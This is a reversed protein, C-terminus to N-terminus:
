HNEACRADALTSLAPEGAGIVQDVFCELEAAFSDVYAPIGWAPGGDDRFRAENWSYSIGGRAGLLKYMVTWPDNTMDDAAFSAWLTAIAGTEMVCIVMVQDEDGLDPRTRSAVATVHRPRGLLYLLSYAHHISVARLVGGYRAALADDHFINYMGWFSTVPAFANEEVLHRARRMSPTYIYNHAPMCARGAARAAADLLDIDAVTAAVPKEVLVHKGAELCRRALEVHSPTPTLILAASAAEDGLLADFSDYARGGLRDALARAKAAGPDFVGACRADRTKPIARAYLEAVTGAGVLAIGIM